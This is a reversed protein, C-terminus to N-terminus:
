AEARRGRLRYYASSLLPYSWVLITIAGLTGAVPRNFFAEIDGQSKLVSNMFNEEVIRGLVLGLVLPGAPYDNADLIWVLVGVVLLFWLDFLSNSTAYAGVMCLLLIISYLTGPPVMLIRRGMIIALIGLPVMLINSLFFVVYVANLLEPSSTFVMPGPQIGKIILVGVVIATISDGPIGFVLTPVYSGSLAANNSAGAEAVGELHGTGFKEPTKSFRKSIAYSIWAAIDSGAGPLAGVLTGTLSGRAIGSKYRWLVEGQGRMFGSASLPPPVPLPSDSSTAKRYLEAIAFAAILVAILPVGAQLDVVGYTFRQQGTVVDLGVTSLLVGLMLSMMAKVQDGPAVITACSLGLLALWFYEYSSFNLAFNALQPAAVVLVITGIIGGIASTTLTTGLGLALKGQKNLEFTDGVYAASAPTGPIRLLAGPIDGAFIAMASCTIIAGIAAVPSLFFTVPVLLAVAMTASLGPTAGVFLGFAASIIIIIMVDLSLVMPLAELFATM